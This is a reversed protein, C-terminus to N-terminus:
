TLLSSILHSLILHSSILHSSILHSSTLHSSILHSLHHVQQANPGQTTHQAKLVRVIKTILLLMDDLTAKKVRAARDIAGVAMATAAKLEDM